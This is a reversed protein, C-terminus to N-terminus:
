RHTGWRLVYRGGIACIIVLAALTAGHWRLASEIDDHPLALCAGSNALLGAALAALLGTLMPNLPAGKRLMITLAAILPAGALFIMTVCIWEHQASSGPDVAPPQAALMGFSVFWALAAILSVLLVGRTHGPVVSALAAWAAFAGAVVGFLQTAVFAPSFSGAPSRIVTVVTALIGVFLVSGIIWFFARRGPRPLPDVPALDARLQEILDDTRM